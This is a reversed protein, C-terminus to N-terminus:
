GSTAYKAKLRDAYQRTLDIYQRSYEVSDFIGSTEGLEDWTEIALLRRGSALARELNDNYYQGGRRDAVLGNPRGFHANDFGPGVEAVTFRTDANFGSPAAGWNYLGDTQIPQNPPTTNKSAYWQWERVVYPRLGGFDAAFQDSVYDFTSQDFAAVHQTDYLWVIPKGDIAAWLNPPIRSYYDRITVYFFQKGRETTLDQDQMITTDIFLGVKLPTGRAALSQLAAVMPPLGQTSFLNLEPAPAVPKNYQGPEGWYDPLAVDIGATLMDTFQREYFAQSTFDWQPFDVPHLIYVDRGRARSLDQIHAYRYWYFFYAFVVAQTSTFSQMHFETWGPSRYPGPNAWSFGTPVQAGGANGDVLPLGQPNAEWSFRESNLRMVLGNPGNIWTHYGNTFATWNDAKRWVLLGKTTHQLADGSVPDHTEDEVCNGVDVPDLDHLTQFGLQFQCSVDQARVPM